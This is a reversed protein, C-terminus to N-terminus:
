LQASRQELKKFVQSRLENVVEQLQDNREKLQWLLHMQQLMQYNTIPEAGATSAMQTTLDFPSRQHAFASEAQNEAGRRGASCAEYLDRQPEMLDGTRPRKSESSYGSIGGVHRGDVETRSNDRDRKAGLQSNM